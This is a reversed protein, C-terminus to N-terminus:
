EAGLMQEILMALSIMDFGLTADSTRVNKRNLPNRKMELNLSDKLIKCANIKERFFARDFVSLYNETIYPNPIQLYGNTLIKLGSNMFNIFRMLFYGINYHFKLSLTGEQEDLGAYRTSSIDDLKRFKAQLILQEIKKYYRYKQPLSIVSTLLSYEAFPMEVNMEESYLYSLKMHFKPNRETLYVYENYGSYNDNGSRRSMIKYLDKEIEDLVTKPANYRNNIFIKYYESEKYENTDNPRCDYGMVGDSFYNSILTCGKYNKRTIVDYIHGHNVGVGGGTKVPIDLAKKYTDITIKCFDPKTVNLEKCIKKAISYDKIVKNHGFTFTKISSADSVTKLLLLSLRSDLGGSVGMVVDKGSYKSYITSLPEMVKNIANEASDEEICPINYDWYSEISVGEKGFEYVMKSAAPLQKIECFATRDFLGSSYMLTEYCGVVDLELRLKKFNEFISDAKLEGKSFYVYIPISCFPDNLLTLGNEDSRVFIGHNRKAFEVENKETSDVYGFTYAIFDGVRSENLNTNVLVSKNANVSLNFYYM